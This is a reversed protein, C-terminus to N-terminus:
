ANLPNGSTDFDDDRYCYQYAFKCDLSIPTNEDQQYKLSISPITKPWVGEM